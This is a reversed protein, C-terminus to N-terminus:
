RLRRLSCVLPQAFSSDQNSKQYHLVNKDGLHESRYQLGAQWGRNLPSRLTGEGPTFRGGDIVLTLLQM